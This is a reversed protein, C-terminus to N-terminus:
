ALADVLEAVVAAPILAPGISRAGFRRREIYCILGPPVLAAGEPKNEALDSGAVGIM